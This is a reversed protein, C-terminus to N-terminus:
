NQLSMKKPVLLVITYDGVQYSTYTKIMGANNKITNTELFLVTIGNKRSFKIMVGLDNTQLTENTAVFRKYWEKGGRSDLLSIGGDKWSSYVSRIAYARIKNSYSTNALVIDKPTTHQSLVDLAELFSKESRMNQVTGAISRYITPISSQGIFIILLLLAPIMKRLKHNPFFREFARMLM